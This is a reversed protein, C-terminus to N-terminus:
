VPHRDRGREQASEGANSDIVGHVDASSPPRVILYAIVGLVPFILMGIAWLVKVTTSWDRRFLDILVLAWIVVWLIALVTFM